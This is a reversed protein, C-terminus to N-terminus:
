PYRVRLSLHKEIVDFDKDSHLLEHDNQICFSAILVDITKRVTVGRTRLKRYNDAALLAIKQGTINKLTFSLLLNRASQFDHEHRFGQLVECLILDGLKYNFLPIPRQRSM